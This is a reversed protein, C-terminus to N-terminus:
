VEHPNLISLNEINKFDNINRTLLILQHVMATAAIIADGLKLKRYGRKLNITEEIVLDNLPLINALDLFRRLELMKAPNTDNFYLM